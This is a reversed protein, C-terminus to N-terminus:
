ACARPAALSALSPAVVVVSAFRKVTSACRALTL